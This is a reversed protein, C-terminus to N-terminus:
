PHVGMALGIFDEYQMTAQGNRMSDRQRFGDSLRKIQINIVIFNDLTLKKTRRDYKSVMRDVFMPSFTYGMQQLARTLEAQDISGSKDTDFGQFTGRWQNISSFLQQFENVDITGSGDRDYMEIMMRCAEESFNSWNGNVLARQLEQANIHGSRDSDVASFWQQVSPDVQVQPKAYGGQGAPYGGMQGSPPGGPRPGGAPYGGGQGGPYGGQAGPYGGQTNNGGPYGGGGQPRSPYGGQGPYPSTGPGGSPYGGQNGPYGAGQNGPYGGGQNSPYGGGGPYGSM